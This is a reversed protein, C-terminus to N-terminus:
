PLSMDSISKKMKALQWGNFFKMSNNCIGTSKNNSYNCIQNFVFDTTRVDFQFDEHHEHDVNSNSSISNNSHVDIM